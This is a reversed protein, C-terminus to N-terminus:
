GCMCMGEDFRGVQLNGDDMFADMVGWGIWGMNHSKVQSPISPGSPANSDLLDTKNIRRRVTAVSTRHRQGQAPM